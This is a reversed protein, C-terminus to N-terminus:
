PSQANLHLSFSPGQKSVRTQVTLSRKFIDPLSSLSM